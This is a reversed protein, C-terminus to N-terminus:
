LWLGAPGGPMEARMRLLAEPKINEQTCFEMLDAERSFLFDLVAGLFGPDTAQRKIELTDIGSLNTFAGLLNDRSLVFSLAKLGATLAPDSTKTM